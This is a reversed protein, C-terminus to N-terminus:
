HLDFYSLTSVSIALHTSNWSNTVWTGQSRIFLNSDVKQKEAHMQSTFKDDWLLYCHGWKMKVHCHYWSLPGADWVLLFFAFYRSKISSATMLPHCAFVKGMLIPQQPKGAVVEQLGTQLWLGQFFAMLSIPRAASALEFTPQSQISGLTPVEKYTIAAGGKAAGSLHLMCTLRLFVPSGPSASPNEVNFVCVIRGNLKWTIRLYWRELKLLKQLACNINIEKNIYLKVSQNFEHCVHYNHNM